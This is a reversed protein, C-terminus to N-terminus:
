IKEDTLCENNKKVFIRPIGFIDKNEEAKSNNFKKNNEVSLLACKPVM